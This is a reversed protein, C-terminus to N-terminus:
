RPFHPSGVAAKDCTRCLMDDSKVSPRRKECRWCVLDFISAECARCYELSDWGDAPKEDCNKCVPNALKDLQTLAEQLPVRADDFLRDGNVADTLAEVSACVAAIMTTINPKQRNTVPQREEEWKRWARNFRKRCTGGCFVATSRLATFSVGCALCFTTRAM